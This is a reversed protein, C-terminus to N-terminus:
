WIRRLLPRKEQFAHDQIKGTNIHTELAAKFRKLCKKTLILNKMGETDRESVDALADNLNKEIDAFAKVVLPHTLIYEAQSRDDSM